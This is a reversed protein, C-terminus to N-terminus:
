CDASCDSAVKVTLSSVGWIFGNDSIEVNDILLSRLDFRELFGKLGVPVIVESLAAGMCRHAGWGFRLGTQAHENPMLSVVVPQNAKFTQAGITVDVESVRAVRNVSGCEAILDAYQEDVWQAAVAPAMSPCEHFMKALINAFTKAVAVLGTGYQSIIALSANSRVSSDDADDSCLHQFYTGDLIDASQTLMEQMSRVLKQTQRTERISQLPSLLGEMVRGANIDFSAPVSEPIGFTKRLTAAIYPWVFQAYLDIGAGSSIPVSSAVRVSEAHFENHMDQLHARGFFKLSQRKALPQESQCTFLLSQQAFRRLLSFDNGTAAEVNTLHRQLNPLTFSPHRLIQRVLATDDVTTFRSNDVLEVWNKRAHIM